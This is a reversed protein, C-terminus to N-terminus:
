LKIFKSQSSGTNSGTAEFYFIVTYVAPPLSSIDIEFLNESQKMGTSYKMRKGEMDTIEWRLVRCVECGVTLTHTAPNPYMSWIVPEYTMTRTSMFFEPQIFGQVLSVDNSSLVSIVSEGLQYDMSFENDAIISNGCSGIVQRDASQAYLLITAFLLIFLLSSRIFKM